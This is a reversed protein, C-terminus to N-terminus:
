FRNFYILILYVLATHGMPLTLGFREMLQPLGYMGGAFFFIFGFGDFGRLPFCRSANMHKIVHLISM